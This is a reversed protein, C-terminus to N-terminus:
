RACFFHNGGLFVMNTGWVMWELYFVYDVEFIEEPYSNESHITETGSEVALELHM